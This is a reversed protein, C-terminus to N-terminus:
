LVSGFSRAGRKWAAPDKGRLFATRGPAEDEGELQIQGGSGEFVLRLDPGLLRVGREELLVTLGGRRASFRVPPPWQGLNELFGLSPMAIRQAPEGAAASGFALAAFSSGIWRRLM